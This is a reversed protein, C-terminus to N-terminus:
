QLFITRYCWPINTGKMKNANIVTIVNTVNTDINKVRCSLINVDIYQLSSWWFPRAETTLQHSQLLLDTPPAAIWKQASGLLERENGGSKGGLWLCTLPLGRLGCWDQVAPDTAQIWSLSLESFLPFLTSLSLISSVISLSLSLSLFMCLFVHDSLLHFSVNSLNLM